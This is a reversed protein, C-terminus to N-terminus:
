PQAHCCDIPSIVHFTGELFFHLRQSQAFAFGKAALADQRHGLCQQLRAHGIDAAILARRDRVQDIHQGIRAVQQVFEAHMQLGIGVLGASRGHEPGGDGIRDTTRHGPFGGDAGIDGRVRQGVQGRGTHAAPRQDHNAFVVALAGGDHLLAGMGKGGLRLDPQEIRAGVQGGDHAHHFFAELQGLGRGARHHQLQADTGTMHMALEGGAGVACRGDRAVVRQLFRVEVVVADHQRGRGVQLFFELHIHAPWRRHFEHALLLQIFEEIAIQRADADDSLAPQVVARQAGQLLEAQGIGKARRAHRDVAHVHGVRQHRIFQHAKAGALRRHQHHLFALGVIQFFRQQRCQAPGFDIARHHVALVHQRHGAFVGALHQQPAHALEHLRHRLVRRAHIGAGDSGDGLGCQRGLLASATQQALHYRRTRGAKADAARLPRHERGHFQDLAVAALEVERGIDAAMQEGGQRREVDAVGHQAVAETQGGVRGDIRQEVPAGHRHHAIAAEPVVAEGRAHGVGGEILIVADQHDHFVAVGRGGAGLVNRGRRLLVVALCDVHADLLREGAETHLPLLGHVGVAHRFHRRRQALGHACRELSQLHDDGLGFALELPLAPELRLHGRRQLTALPHHACAKAHILIDAGAVMGADAEGATRRQRHLGRTIRELDIRDRM